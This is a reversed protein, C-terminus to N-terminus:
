LEGASPFDSADCYDAMDICLEQALTGSTKEGRQQLSHRLAVVGAISGSGLEDTVDECFERLEDEKFHRLGSKECMNDIIHAIRKVDLMNEEKERWLLDELDQVWTRCAECDDEDEFSDELLAAGELCAGVEVCSKQKHRLYGRWNGEHQVGNLPAVIENYNEIKLKECGAVIHPKYERMDETDCANALIRNGDIERYPKSPDIRREDLAVHTEIAFSDIFASCAHCFETQSLYTTPPPPKPKEIEKEGKKKPGKRAGRALVPSPALALAVLLLAVGVVVRAHPRRSAM